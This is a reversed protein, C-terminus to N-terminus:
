RSLPKPESGLPDSGDGHEWTHALGQHALGQHGIQHYIYKRTPYEPTNVGDGLIVSDLLVPDIQGCKGSESRQEELLSFPSSLQVSTWGLVVALFFVFIRVKM